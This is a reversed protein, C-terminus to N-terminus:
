STVRIFRRADKVRLAGAILKPLLSDRPADALTEGAITRPKFWERGAIEAGNRFRWGISELWAPAAQEVVSETFAGSVALVRFCDM